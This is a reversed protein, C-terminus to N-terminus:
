PRLRKQRLEDAMARLEEAIERLAAAEAKVEVSPEHTPAMLRWLLDPWRM